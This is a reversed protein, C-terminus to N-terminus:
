AAVTEPCADFLKEIITLVDIVNEFLTECISADQPWDNKEWANTWGVSIDLHGNTSDKSLFIVFVENQRVTIPILINAQQYDKKFVKRAQPLVAQGVGNGYVSGGIRYLGQMFGGWPGFNECVLTDVQEQAARFEMMGLLRLLSEEHCMILTTTVSSGKPPKHLGNRVFRGSESYARNQIADLM